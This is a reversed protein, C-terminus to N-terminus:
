IHLTLIRLRSKVGDKLCFYRLLRANNLFIIIKDEEFPSWKNHPRMVQKSFFAGFMRSYKTKGSANKVRKPPSGYRSQIEQM